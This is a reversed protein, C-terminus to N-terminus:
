AQSRAWWQETLFLTRDLGGIDIPAGPPPGMMGEQWRTMYWVGLAPWHGAPATAAFTLESLVRHRYDWPQSGPAVWGVQETLRGYAQIPEADTPAAALLQAWLQAQIGIGFRGESASQWLADIRQLESCSFRAIAAQQERWDGSGAAQELWQQTLADAARFDRATLQRALVAAYDNSFGPIALLLTLSVIGITLGWRRRDFGSKRITM